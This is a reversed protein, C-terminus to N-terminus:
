SLSFSANIINCANQTLKIWHPYTVLSPFIIHTSRLSVSFPGSNLQLPERLEATISKVIESQLFLYIHLHNAFYMQDTVIQIKVKVTHQSPFNLRYTNCPLVAKYSMLVYHLFIIHVTKPRIQHCKDVFHLWLKKAFDRCTLTTSKTHTHTNKKEFGPRSTLM